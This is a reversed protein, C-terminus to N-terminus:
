GGPQDKADDQGWGTFNVRAARALARNLITGLTARKAFVVEAPAALIEDVAARIIAAPDERSFAPLCVPPDGGEPIETARLGPHHITIELIGVGEAEALRAGLVIMEDPFNQFLLPATIRFRAITAM